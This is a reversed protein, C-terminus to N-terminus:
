RRRKTRDKVHVANAAHVQFARCDVGLAAALAQVHGWSPERLGQEWHAVAKLSLGAIDALAKQTLGKKERLAKLRGAFGGM